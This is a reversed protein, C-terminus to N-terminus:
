RRVYLRNITGYEDTTTLNATVPLSTSISSLATALMEKKMTDYARYWLDFQGNRERLHIYIVGDEAPGVLNVACDFWGGPAAEAGEAATQAGPVSPGQATGVTQEGVVSM